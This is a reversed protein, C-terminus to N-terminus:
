FLIRCGHARDGAEAALLMRRAPRIHGERLSRAKAPDHGALAASAALDHSNEALQVLRALPDAAARRILGSMYPEGPRRTLADIAAVVDEPVGLLRLRDVDYRREPDPHDRTDEVIDRLVGAMEAVPGFRRLAEAVPRLRALYHDRGLEDVQGDHADLALLHADHVTFVM